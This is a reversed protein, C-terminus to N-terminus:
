VGSTMRHYAITYESPYSMICFARNLHLVLLNDNRFYEDHHACWLNVTKNALIRQNNKLIEPIQLNELYGFHAIETSSPSGSFRGRYKLLMRNKYAIGIFRQSFVPNMSLMNALHNGGCGPPFILFLNKVSAFITPDM